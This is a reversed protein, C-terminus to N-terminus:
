EYFQVQLIKIKNNITTVIIKEVFDNLFILKEKNTLYYWHDKIKRSTNIKKTNNSNSKLFAIEEKILTLEQNLKNKMYMLEKYTFTNNIYCNLIERKKQNIKTIKNKLTNLDNLPKYDNLEIENFDILDEINNIYDVFMKEIKLHSISPLSCLNKEKNPCKYGTFLSAFGEKSTKITKTTTLRKGCIGCALIRCFYNTEKPWNTRKLVKNKAIREKAKNFTNIDIIPKHKGDIILKNAKNLGYRVKGIYTENTLINKISKAQWISTIKTNNKVKGYNKTPVKLSNLTKAIETLTKGNNYMNFIKKVIIAEKENITQIKEGKKREYGYSINNCALTYGEKVKQELAVKIREITQERELQAVIGDLRIKFRGNASEVDIIGGALTFTEINYKQLLNIIDETDTSSRTLRDFKYLLVKDIHKQKIDAIMRKIESRDEINKGSIGEDAYISYIHWGQKQAFSILNNKQAEISYGEKVQQITSVRIYIAVNM